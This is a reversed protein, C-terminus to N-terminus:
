KTLILKDNRTIRLRYLDGKHLIRVEHVDKFLSETAIAAPAAHEPALSDPGPADPQAAYVLTKPTPAM